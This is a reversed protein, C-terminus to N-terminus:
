TIYKYSLIKLCKEEITKVPIIGSEVAKKVATFEVLPKEPSLLIDNGALLAEVCVSKKKRAVGKMVLADTIKLGQFSLSNTLLGTVVKSSLSTPLGATGDLAPVSLHGTMIGSLGAQTYKIFPYLEVSDLRARDHNIQPLTLHSDTATDGHGPFHKGVSIVNREELGQAYAIGKEAVVVPNEGFSRINIVPNNPNVNVDLVPAFNIQVGLENCERGIEEGYLRILENNRIAGIMINKPFRPADDKLRMSLGWEGDFSIFLPIRSNEQYLNISEAEEDLKGGSFLIGGIKQRKINEITQSHYSSRPDVTIMFLQGIKEDMTMTDFISDVWQRMAIPDVTSYLAPSTQAQTELYIISLIIIIAQRVV